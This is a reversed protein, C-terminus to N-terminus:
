LVEFKGNPDEMKNKINLFEKKTMNNPVFYDDLDKYDHLYDELVEEAEVKAATESYGRGMIVKIYDEKTMNIHTPCDVITSFRCYKGNPQKAIFAGM